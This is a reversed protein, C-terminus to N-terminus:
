VYWHNGTIWDTELQLLLPCKQIMFSCMQDAKPSLKKFFCFLNLSANAKSM